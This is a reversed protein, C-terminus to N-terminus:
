HNKRHRDARRPVDFSIRPAAGLRSNESASRRSTRRSTQGKVASLRMTVIPCKAMCRYVRRSSLSPSVKRTSREARRLAGPETRGAGSRGTLRAVLMNQVSYLTVLLFTGLGIALMVATTQNNPRHLNALGQRWAFPLVGACDQADVGFGRARASDSCGFVALVGGTFWLGSIRSAPPRWPLPGSAPSSSRLCFGALWDRAPREADFSARLASLPSIQRLPLLPILAFLLATGLGVALGAVIGAPALTVVTTM